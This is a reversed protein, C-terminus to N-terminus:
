LLDLVTGGLWKGWLSLASASLAAPSGAIALEGLSQVSIQIMRKSQHGLLVICHLRPGFNFQEIVIRLFGAHVNCNGIAVTVM